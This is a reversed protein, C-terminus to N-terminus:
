KVVEPKNNRLVHYALESIKDQTDSDAEVGAKRLAGIIVYYLREWELEEDSEWQAKDSM